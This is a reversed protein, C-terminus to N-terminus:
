KKPTMVFAAPYVKKVEVLHKEAELRTRFSGIRIKYNPTEFILQSPYQKLQEKVKALAENAGAINGNYIQIQYASENKAVEKKLEMLESINNEQNITVQSYLSSVMFSFIFGLVIQLRVM